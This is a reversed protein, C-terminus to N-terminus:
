NTQFIVCFYAVFRKRQKSPLLKVSQNLLQMQLLSELSRIRIPFLLSVHVHLNMSYLTTLCIFLDWSHKLQETICLVCSGARACFFHLPFSASLSIPSHVKERSRSHERWKRLAKYCFLACNLSKTKHYFDIIKRVFKAKNEFCVHRINHANTLEWAKYDWLAHVRM